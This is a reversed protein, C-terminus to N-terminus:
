SGKKDAKKRIRQREARRRELRPAHDPPNKLTFCVLADAWKEYSEFSAEEDTLEIGNPGSYRWDSLLGYEMTLSELISEFPEKIRAEWSTRQAKVTEISPLATYDLITRVKLRSATGKIQNNDLSFHEAMKLGVRYANPNREDIRLLAEPYQTMPLRLLYEAMSGAFELFIESNKIGGAGLINVTGFNTPDKQGNIKEAWNLSSKALLEIDRKAKKRASRLANDARKKEKDAQEKTMNASMRPEVDYGCLAAYRKLPIKVRLAKVNISDGKKHEINNKATFLAVGTSLLKHTSIGLPGSLANFKEVILRVESWEVMGTNNIPNEAMKRGAMMAIADTAKGHVMPLYSGSDKIETAQRIALGSFLSAQPEKLIQQDTM